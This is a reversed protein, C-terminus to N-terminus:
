YSQVEKAKVICADILPKDAVEYKAEKPLHVKTARGIVIAVYSHDWAFNKAFCHISSPSTFIIISGHPPADKADYEICSTEYLVQEYLKIGKRALFGKSDFSIEKPRLYLIKRDSFLEVIDQALEDAYFHRPYYIVNGGLSEIEQKTAGGIAICPYKKWTPDIKDASRVAQKSSFMLTDCVSFDIHKATIAFTIMPLHRVADRASPSLLFIDRLKSKSM